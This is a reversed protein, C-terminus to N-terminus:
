GGLRLSPGGGARSRSRRPHCLDGGHDRGPVSAAHQLEGQETREPLAANVDLDDDHVVRRRVIGRRHDRAQLVATDSQDAVVDRPADAGRAVSPDRFRVTFPDREQVVVVHPCRVLERQLPLGRGASRARPGVRAVHVHVVVQRHQSRESGRRGFLDDGVERPVVWEWRPRRVDHDPGVGEGLHPREVGREAAGLVPVQPDPKRLGTRRRVHFPWQHAVAEVSGVDRGIGPRDDLLGIQEGGPVADRHVARRHM